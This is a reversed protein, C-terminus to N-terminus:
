EEDEEPLSEIRARIRGAVDARCELRLAVKRGDIRTLFLWSEEPFLSVCYNEMREIGEKKRIDKEFLVVRDGRSLRIDAVTRPLKGGVKTVTFINGEDPLQYVYETLAYRVLLYVLATLTILMGLQNVAKPGVNLYSLIWFILTIVLLPFCIVILPKLKRHPTYQM